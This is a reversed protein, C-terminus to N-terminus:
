SKKDLEELAQHLAKQSGKIEKSISMSKGMRNALELLGFNLLAQSEIVFILSKEISNQRAALKARSKEELEKFQIVSQESAETLKEVYTMLEHELATLSQDEKKM